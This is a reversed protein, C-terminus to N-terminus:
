HDSNWATRYHKIIDEVKRFRVVENSVHQIVKQNAEFKLDTSIVFLRIHLEDEDFKM